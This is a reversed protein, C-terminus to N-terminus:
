NRPGLPRRPLDPEIGKALSQFGPHQRIPNFDSDRLYEQLASPSCRAAGRRIWEMAKAADNDYVYTIAMNFYSEPVGPHRTVLWNLHERSEEFRGLRLLTVAYNNRLSVSDPIGAMALEFYEAASEYQGSALFLLGLNVYGIHHDPKIQVATLLLEEAKERDGRQLYATSLNILTEPNFSDKTLAKELVSIAQDFQGRQIYIVGLMRLAADMEPYIDLAKRVHLTAMDYDKKQLYEQAKRMEGMAATMKQPDLPPTGAGAGGASDTWERPPTYTPDISLGPRDTVVTNTDLSLLLFDKDADGHKRNEAWMWWALLLFVAMLALFAISTLRTRKHAEAMTIEPGAALPASPENEGFKKNRSM